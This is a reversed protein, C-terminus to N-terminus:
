KSCIAAQLTLQMEKNGRFLNVGPKGAVDVTNGEYLSPHETHSWMVAPIETHGDSLWCKLHANKLVQVKRVELQKILIQPSPNGVGFPAFSAFEEVLTPHIESLLCTTDAYVCPETEIDALSKKCLENFARAFNEIKSPEISFGGAGSHGGFKILHDGLETLADIVSFGSIGRVSGKFIGNDAGAVIAPRYFSEALRQAVIGIVGTHFAEDWVLIGWPLSSLQEVRRVAQEKMRAEIDQRQQNLRNLRRALKMARKSDDTVLLETVLEGHLMRGAANIRPGIGFGIHGGNVEGNIGIIQKLAILGPRTTVTLTELGRRAIVRNAGILPVMDCITGLCALDLYRRVDISSGGPVHNRLAAILYWSLGAACLIGDAFGCNKQQPNVFVDAEPDNSGVHHHDLVITSLGLSRAIAIEKKNSTGYDITLIASFKEEAIRRIMNENLGYGEAFRDPVFVRHSVGIDHFFRSVLSGGSLGDVDFDCCIAISDKKEIHKALLACAKNLNYLLGPDPLGEKLSPLLYQKLNDDAKFSRAALIRAAVESICYKESISAAAAENQTKLKISRFQKESRPAKLKVATSM